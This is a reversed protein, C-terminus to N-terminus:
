MAEVWEVPVVIKTEWKSPDLETGPDTIYIEYCPLLPTVGKAYIAPMIKEYSDSLTEYPGKHIYTMAKHPKIYESALTLGGMLKETSMMAISFTSVENDDHAETVSIPPQILKAADGKAAVEKFIAQYASSYMESTIDAANVDVYRKGIYFFGPMEAEEIGMEKAEPKIATVPNALAAKEMGTLGQEYMGTLMSPMIVNMLRQGFKTGGTSEFNWTVETGGEVESFQMDCTSYEMGDGMDFGIDMGIEKDETIERIEMEGIGTNPGDWSYGCGVGRSGAENYTVKMDPDSAAWPSWSEWNKFEVVQEWVAPLPVKLVKKHSVNMETPGFLGVGVILLILLSILVLIIRLVKM